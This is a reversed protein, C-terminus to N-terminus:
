GYIDDNKRIIQVHCMTLVEDPDGIFALAQYVHQQNGIVHGYLPLEGPVFSLKKTNTLGDLPGGQFACKAVAISRKPKM